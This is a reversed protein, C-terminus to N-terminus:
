KQIGFAYAVPLFGDRRVQDPRVGVMMEGRQTSRGPAIILCM